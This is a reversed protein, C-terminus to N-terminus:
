ETRGSLVSYQDHDHHNDITTTYLNSGPLSYTTFIIKKAPSHSLREDLKAPSSDLELVKAVRCVPPLIPIVRVVDNKLGM